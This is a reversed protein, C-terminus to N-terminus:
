TLRGTPATARATRNSSSGCRSALARLNSRNPNRISPIASADSWSSSSRPDCSSQNWDASIHSYAMRIPLAAQIATIWKAVPRSGSNSVAMKASRLKTIASMKMSTMPTTMNALM